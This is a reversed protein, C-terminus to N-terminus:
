QARAALASCTDAMVYSPVLESPHKFALTVQSSRYMTYVPESGDYWGGVWQWQEWQMQIECNPSTASCAKTVRYKTNMPQCWGEWHPSLNPGTTWDTTASFDVSVAQPGVCAGSRGHAYFRVQIPGTTAASNCIYDLTVEDWSQWGDRIGTATYVMGDVCNRQVVVQPTTSRTCKLYEYANITQECQFNTDGDIVIARGQTCSNASVEQTTTCTETTYVPPTTEVKAICQNGSATQGVNQQFFAEAGDRVTKANQFISDSKSLTFQPRVDPNRALFNVADCEQADVNDAATPNTACTQMKQVGSANVQGRGGDFLSAEAPTSGYGRINTSSAGSKASDFTANTKSKGLQKGSTFAQVISEANANLSAFWIAMVMAARMINGM